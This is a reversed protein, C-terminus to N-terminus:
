YNLPHLAYHRLYFQYKVGCLASYEAGDSKIYTIPEHICEDLSVVEIITDGQNNIKSSQTNDAHFKLTETQSYLGQPFIEINPFHENEYFSMSSDEFYEQSQDGSFSKSLYFDDFSLRYMIVNDFTQKSKEDYLIECFKIYKNKNQVLDELVNVYCPHTKFENYYLAILNYDICNTFGAIALQQKIEFYYLLSAIIIVPQVTKDLEELAHVPFGNLKQHQLQPNNDVFGKVDWKLTQCANLAKQGLNKAGFIYVPKQSLLELKHQHLRFINDKLEEVSSLKQLKEIVSM